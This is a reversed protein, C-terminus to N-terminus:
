WQFNVGAVIDLPTEQYQKWIYNKKNLLNDIKFTFLFERSFAYGFEVFLSSNTRMWDLNAPDTYQGGRLKIGAKGTVGQILTYGYVAMAEINPVYPISKHTSDKVSNYKIKGYFYGIESPQM